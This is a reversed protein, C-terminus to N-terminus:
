DRHADAWGLSNLKGLVVRDAMAHNPNRANVYLEPNGNASM